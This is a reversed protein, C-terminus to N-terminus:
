PTSSTPYKEWEAWRICHLWLRTLRWRICRFRSSGPRFCRERARREQRMRNRAVEDRREVCRQHAICARGARQEDASRRPKDHNDRCSRQRAQDDGRHRAPDYPLLRHRENGSVGRLRRQLLGYFAQGHFVANNVLTDVALGNWPKRWHWSRRTRTPSTGRCPRWMRITLRRSLDPTPSSRM